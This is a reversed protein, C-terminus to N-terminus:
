PLRRLVAEMADTLRDMQGLITKREEREMRITEQQDVIREKYADVTANTHLKGTLLAMGVLVLVGLAGYDAIASLPDVPVQPLTTAYFGLLFAPGEIVKM